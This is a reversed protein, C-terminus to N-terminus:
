LKLSLILNNKDQFSIFNNMKIIGTSYSDSFFDLREVNFKLNAMINNLMKFYKNLVSKIM